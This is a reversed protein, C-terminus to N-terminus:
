LPSDTITMGCYDVPNRSYNVQHYIGLKMADQLLRKFNAWFENTHGNSATMLHSMEHLTVFMVTNDDVFPYPPHMKDRLCLVIKEGKNESYSTHPSSVSNEMMNNVNFRQVLLQAAQDQSYEPHKYEDLLLELKARIGALKEAAEQKDPLDQVMYNRNDAKATVSVLNGPGGNMYAYAVAVIGIGALGLFPYM